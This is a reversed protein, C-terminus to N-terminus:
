VNYITYFRSVNTSPYPTSTPLLPFPPFPPFLNTNMHVSFSLHAAHSPSALSLQSQIYYIFIYKYPRYQCHHTLSSHIYSTKTPTLIPQLFLNWSLTTLFFLLGVHKVQNLHCTPLTLIVSLSGHILYFFM